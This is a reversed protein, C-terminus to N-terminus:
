DKAQRQRARYARAKHQSGCTAMNCWVRSRNKTTDYYAWGCQRCAKMRALTGDASAAYVLGVLRSLAGPVGGATPELALRGDSGVSVRLPVRETAAELTLRTRDDLQGGNNAAFLRRIAARLHRADAVDRESAPEGQDVLGRAVLWAQLAEATAIRDEEEGTQLFEILLDHPEV